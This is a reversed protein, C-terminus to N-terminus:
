ITHPNNNLSEWIAVNSVRKSHLSNYDALTRSLLLCNFIAPRRQTEVEFSKTRLLEIRDQRQFGM